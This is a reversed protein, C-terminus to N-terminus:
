YLMCGYVCLFFENSFVGSLCVHASLCTCSASGPMKVIGLEVPIIATLLEKLLQVLSSM